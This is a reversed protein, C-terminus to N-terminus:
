WWRSFWATRRPQPGPVKLPLGQLIAMGNTSCVRDAVAHGAWRVIEHYAAALHPPRRTPSHGDSGILHVIGRQFWGRLARKDAPTRPRTISGSSVQVLCGAQILEEITEQDQVLDAQREPHALIPRIGAARLEEVLYRIEVFQGHPMELLLYQRRDAVTLLEGRQWAAMLDPAVMVEASPFAVLPINADNLASTLSATAERIREPDNVWRENQHATAALLRTGQEYAIRCMDLALEPTAPGDDVGALVHCHLDVLPLM